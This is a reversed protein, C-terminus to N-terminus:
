SSRAAKSTQRAPARKVQPSVKAQRKTAAARGGVPAGIRGTTKARGPTARVAKAPAPATGRAEKDTVSRRAPRLPAPGVLVREKGKVITVELHGGVAEAYQAIVDLTVNPSREIAAVRPQSVGMLRALARQSLGAQERLATLGVAVRLGEEIAAVRAPAGPAALVKEEWDKVSM